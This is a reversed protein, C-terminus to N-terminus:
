ISHIENYYNKHIIIVSTLRLAKATQDKVQVFLRSASSHKQILSCVTGYHFQTNPSSLFFVSLTQQTKFFSLSFFSTRLSPIKNQKTKWEGEIVRLDPM